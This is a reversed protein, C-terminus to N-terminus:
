IKDTEDYVKKKYILAVAYEANCGKSMQWGNCRIIGDCRLLAEIDKGMCEEYDKGEECVDFPTIVEINESQWREKVLEATKKAENLPKGTIPLSVYLKQKM